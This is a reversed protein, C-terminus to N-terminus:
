YGNGNSSVDDKLLLGRINADPDRGLYQGGENVVYPDASGITEPPAPYMASPNAARTARHKTQQASAPAAALLSAAAVGLLLKKILSHM